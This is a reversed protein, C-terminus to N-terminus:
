STLDRNLRRTDKRRTHLHKQLTSYIDDGESVLELLENVSVLSQISVEGEIEEIMQMMTRLNNAYDARKRPYSGKIARALKDFAKQNGGLTWHTIVDAIEPNTVITPDISIAEFIVKDYDDVKARVEEIMDNLTRNRQAIAFMTFNAAFILQILLEATEDETMSDNLKTLKVELSPLKDLLAQRFEDVDDETDHAFESTLGSVVILMLVLEDFSLSYWVSWSSVRQMFREASSSGSQLENFIDKADQNNSKLTGFISKTLNDRQWNM